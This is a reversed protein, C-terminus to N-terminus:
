SSQLHRKLLIMLIERRGTIYYHVFESFLRDTQTKKRVASTRVCILVQAKKWYKEGGVSIRMAHKPTSGTGNGRQVDAYM